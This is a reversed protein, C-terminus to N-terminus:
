RFANLLRVLNAAITTPAVRLRPLVDAIGLTEAAGRTTTYAIEIGAARVSAVLNVPMRGFPYAFSVPTTGLHSEIANQAGMVQADTLARSFGTEDVHSVTHNGIEMGAAQMELM